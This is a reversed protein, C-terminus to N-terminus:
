ANNDAKIMNSSVVNDCISLFRSVSLEKNTCRNKVFEQAFLQIPKQLMVINKIYFNLKIQYSDISSTPMYLLIPLIFQEIDSSDVKFLNDQLYKVVLDKIYINNKFKEIDMMENQFLKEIDSEKQDISSFHETIIQVAVKGKAMYELTSLGQSHPFTQPWIDIIHGYIHPDVHGTFYWRNEAIGYKKLKQEILSKEGTGCALYITNKNNSMIKAMIEIYSESDVKSLRGITGLIVVDNPYKKREQEVIKMNSTPNLYEELILDPFQLFTYDLHKESTIRIDGHKIRYDIGKYDYAYNGHSWYIQIPCTRSTFLFNYEVRGNGSILIDIDQKIIYERIALSKDLISYTISNHGVTKQHLDIYKFGLKKLKKIEEDDSGGFYDMYNLNLIIFEYNKNKNKTLAQLLSYFVNNISYNIIRDQLFAVKIPKSNDIIKKNPKLQYKKILNNKVYQEIKKDINENFFNFEEQTTSAGNHSYLMPTHLSFILETDQDLLAKEFLNYLIPFMYMKYNKSMPFHLMTRSFFKILIQKKAEIREKHFFEDFYYKGINTIYKKFNNKVVIRILEFSQEFKQDNNFKCLIFFYKQEIDDYSSTQLLINLIFWIHLKDFNYLLDNENQEIKVLLSKLQSIVSSNIDDYNNQDKVEITLKLLEELIDSKIKNTNHFMHMIDSISSNLHENM